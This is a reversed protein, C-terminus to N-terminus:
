DLKKGADSLPDIKSQRDILDFIRKAAAKAKESDALDAMAIGIGTLGFLLGFMSILMDDFTYDEPFRFMLWGGFWFMLGIGWMQVLQSIGGTSGKIVNQRVPHPDEKSLATQFSDIREGEITLSAVTRINLLSEVMIGGPSNSPLDAFDTNEGAGEDGMFAQIELAKGIGMFPILGIAMLAFPWMYIFAVVVGVFVSALNMVLLRIPQGSFSHILAADDSLQTTITGVQRLDFYAVEQRILNRFASDRVRKNMRETATGFGWIMMINGIMSAAMLGLLGYFVKFSLDRMYDAVDDWYEQCTDFEPYTDIPPVQDDDCFDVRYYLVKVMYAFVFGWGPFMLGALLAGFAGAIFYYHDGKALLRAREAYKKEEEKTIKLADDEDDKAPVGDHHLDDGEDEDKSTDKQQHSARTALDLNQLDHLRRYKGNPKAMLEDHSGLERVKGHDIVAIRDANRVTSIRHAVVVTTQTMDAM